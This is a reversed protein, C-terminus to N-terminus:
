SGPTNTAWRSRRRYDWLRVCLFLVNLLFVVSTIIDSVLSLFYFWVIVKQTFLKEKRSSFHIVFCSKLHWMTILSILLYFHHKFHSSPPSFSSLGSCHTWLHFCVNGYSQKRCSRFVESGYHCLLSASLVDSNSYLRIGDWFISLVAVCKQISVNATLQDQNVLVQHVVDSGDAKAKLRINRSGNPLCNYSTTPIDSLGILISFSKSLWVNRM